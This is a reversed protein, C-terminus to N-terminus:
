GVKAVRYHAALALEMGGGLTTGHLAAVVPRSLGEIRALVGNYPKASFAPDDFEVIDGGAVFTRGTCAIVLARAESDLEFRDIAAILGAVVNSSIANVPPNNILLLAIDDTRSLQVTTNM